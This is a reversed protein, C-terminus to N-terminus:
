ETYTHERLYGHLLLSNGTMGRLCTESVENVRKVIDDYSFDRSMRARAQFLLHERSTMFGFLLEKQHM